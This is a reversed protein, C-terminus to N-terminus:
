SLMLSMLWLFSIDKGEGISIVVGNIIGIASLVLLCSPYSAWAAGVLGSHIISLGKAWDLVARHGPPLQQREPGQLPCYGSSQLPNTMLSGSGWGQWGAPGVNYSLLSALVCPRAWWQINASCCLGWRWSQRWVRPPQDQLHNFRHCVLVRWWTPPHEQGTVMLGHSRGRCYAKLRILLIRINPLRNGM